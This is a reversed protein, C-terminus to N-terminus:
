AFRVVLIATDDARNGGAAAALRDALLAPPLASPADALTSRIRGLGV